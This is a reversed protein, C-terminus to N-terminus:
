KKNILKLIVKFNRILYESYSDDPIIPINQCVAFKCNDNKMHEFRLGSEGFNSPIICRVDDKVSGIGVMVHAIINNYLYPIWSARKQNVIVLTNKLYKGNFPVRRISQLKKTFGFNKSDILQKLCLGEYQNNLIFVDFPNIKFKKCLNEYANVYLKHELLDEELPDIIIITDFYKKYNKKFLCM